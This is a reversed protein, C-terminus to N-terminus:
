RRYRKAPLACLIKYKAEMYAPSDKADGGGYGASGASYCVQGPITMNYEHQAVTLWCIQQLSTACNVSEVPNIVLPCLITTSNIYQSVSILNTATVKATTTNQVSVNVATVTLVVQAFKPGPAVSNLMCSNLFEDMITVAEGKYNDPKGSLMYVEKTDPNSVFKHFKIAPGTLVAPTVIEKIGSLSLGSSDISIMFVRYSNYALIAIQGNQLSANNLYLDEYEFDGSNCLALGNTTFIGIFPRFHGTHNSQGTIIVEGSQTIAIDNPNGNFSYVGTVIITNNATLSVTIVTSDQNNINVPSVFIASGDNKVVAKVAVQSDVFVSDLIQLTNTNILLIRTGNAFASSAAGANRDIQNSSFWYAYDTGPILFLQNFSNNIIQDLDIGTIQNLTADLKILSPVELGALLVNRKAITLLLENNKITISTIVGTIYKEAVVVGNGNIKFIVSSINGATDAVKSVEATVFYYEGLKIIDKFYLARITTDSFGYFDSFFYKTSSSCGQGQLAALQALCHRTLLLTTGARYDINGRNGNKM